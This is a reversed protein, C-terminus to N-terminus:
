TSKFNVEDKYFYEEHMKMDYLYRVLYMLGTKVISIEIIRGELELPIILVTKNLLKLLEEM